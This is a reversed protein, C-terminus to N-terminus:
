GGGLMDHVRDRSGGLSSDDSHEGIALAVRLNMSSSTYGPSRYGPYAGLNKGCKGMSRSTMGLPKSRSINMM